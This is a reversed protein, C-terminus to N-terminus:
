ADDEDTQRSEGSNKKKSTARNRRFVAVVDEISVVFLVNNSELDVPIANKPHFLVKDYKKVPFDEDREVQVSIEVIRGTITPIEAQDPLVIGGRTKQRSEDKRILIRKGLPEVSENLIVKEPRLEPTQLGRSPPLM